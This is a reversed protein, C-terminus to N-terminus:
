RLLFNIGITNFSLAFLVSISYFCVAKKDSIAWSFDNFSIGYNVSSIYCMVMCFFIEKFCCVAWGSGEAWEHSSPKKMGKHSFQAWFSSLNPWKIVHVHWECYGRIFWFPRSRWKVKWWTGTFSARCRSKRIKTQLTVELV